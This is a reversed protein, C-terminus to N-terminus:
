HTEVWGTKENKKEQTLIEATLEKYDEWGFSGTVIRTSKGFRAGRCAVKGSKLKSSRKKFHFLSKQCMKVSTKRGDFM